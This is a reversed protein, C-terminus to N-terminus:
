QKYFILEITGQHIGLVKNLRSFLSQKSSVKQVRNNQSLNQFVRAALDM